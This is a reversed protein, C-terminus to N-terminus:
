DVICDVEKWFVVRWECLRIFLHSSSSVDVDLVSHLWFVAFTGIFHLDHGRVIRLYFRKRAVSTHKGGNM